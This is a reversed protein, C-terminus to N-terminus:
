KKLKQNHLKVDEYIKIYEHFHYQRIFELKLILSILKKYDNSYLSTDYTLENHEVTIKGDREYIDCITRKKTKPDECLAITHIISVWKSM